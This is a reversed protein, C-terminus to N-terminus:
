LVLLLLFLVPKFNDFYQGALRSPLIIQKQAEPVFCGPFFSIGASSIDFHFLGSLIIIYDIKIISVIRMTCIIGPVAAGYRRQLVTQRRSVPDTFFYIFLM